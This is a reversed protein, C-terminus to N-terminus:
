ILLGDSQKWYFHASATESIGGMGIIVEAEPSAYTAVFKSIASYMDLSFTEPFCLSVIIVRDCILGSEIELRKHIAEETVLPFDIKYYHASGKADFITRIDSWDVGILSPEIALNWFARHQIAANEMCDISIAMNSLNDIQMKVDDPIAFEGSHFSQVYPAVNKMQVLLNMVITLSEESSDHFICICDSKSIRQIQDQNLGKESFAWVSRSDSKSPEEQSLILRIPSSDPGFDPSSLSEPIPINSGCILIALQLKSLEHTYSNIDSM